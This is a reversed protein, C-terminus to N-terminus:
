VKKHLLLTKMCRLSEPGLDRLLAILVSLKLDVLVDSCRESGGCEAAGLRGCRDMVYQNSLKRDAEKVEDM